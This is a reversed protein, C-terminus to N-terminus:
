IYRYIFRCMFDDSAASAEMVAARMKVAALVGDAYASVRRTPLVPFLMFGAM